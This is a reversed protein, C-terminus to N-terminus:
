NYEWISLKGKAQIPFELVQINTLIWAYRGENYEGCAYEIPNNEKINEVYEKTMLICDVLTCKCIIYGFSLEEKKVLNMLFINEKTQKSLKTLSAHIYLEGRYKTKWSRTEVNKIGLKILSAYPETLSIVKMIKDGM